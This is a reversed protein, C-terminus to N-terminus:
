PNRRRNISCVAVAALSPLLVLNCSPWISEIKAIDSLAGAIRVTTGEIAACIVGADAGPADFATALAWVLHIWAKQGLALAGDRVLGSWAADCRDHTAFGGVRSRGRAEAVITWFMPRM